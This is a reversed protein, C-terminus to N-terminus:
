YIPKAYEDAGIATISLELLMSKEIVFVPGSFERGNIIKTEKPPVIHSDIIALSTSFDTLHGEIVKQAAEQAANTKSFFVDCELLTDKHSFNRASGLVASVSDMNHSDLLPVQGSKPLQVGSILRITDMVGHKLSIIKKIPTETAAVVRISQTSDNFGPGSRAIRRVPFNAIM